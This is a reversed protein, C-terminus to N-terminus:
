KVRPATTPDASAAGDKQARKQSFAIPNKELWRYITMYGVGVAKATNVVHGNHAKLAKRFLEDRVQSLTPLETM